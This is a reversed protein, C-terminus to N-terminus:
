KTVNRSYHKSQWRKDDLEVGLEVAILSAISWDRHYARRSRDRRQSKKALHFGVHADVAQDQNWEYM